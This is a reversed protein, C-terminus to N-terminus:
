KSQATKVIKLIENIKEDIETTNWSKISEKFCCWLHSELMSLNASKLLWIVALNQQIIDICYKDNEVMELIKNLSTISKKLAIKIKKNEM